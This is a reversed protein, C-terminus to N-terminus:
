GNGGQRKRAQLAQDFRLGSRGEGAGPRRARAIWFHTSGDLWRSREIRRWVETGERPIEEEEIWYKPDHAPDSPNLIRGLPLIREPQDGEGPRLAAARQLAIARKGPERRVPVLPIWHEPVRTQLLYKLPPADDAAPHYELPESGLQDAREHGPWRLGVGNETSREIGWALNAMEDRIFRVEEIPDSQLSAGVASPSLIFYDAREPGDGVATAFLSWPTEPDADARNVLTTENFVDHVLVNDIRCLSGVDQAFPVVYWDNGHVLMFDLVIIKGLELRSARLEGFDRRSDEFHWWRKNPMGPFVVNSPLVSRSFRTVAGRAPSVTDDDLAFAPRQDFAYWDFTGNRNPYADLTVPNGDANIATVHARYELRDARWAPADNLGIDGFTQEVWAVFAQNLDRVDNPDVGGPVPPDTPLGDPANQIADLLSLGDIGRGQCVVLLRRLDHDRETRPVTDPSPVAFVNRFAAVFAAPMGADTLLVEYWQGLEVRMAWNPTFGETQILEELPAGNHFPTVPDGPAFLGTISSFRGNFEVYAPSAADEGRYEGFQYQRTLFWMPDRVQAALHRELKDSRPSPEIRNWFTISSM